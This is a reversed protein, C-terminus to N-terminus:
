KASCGRLLAANIVIQVDVVNVEGDGNLDNTPQASGLAENLIAQTDTVNTVGDQNLDCKTIVTVDDVTFSTGQAAGTIVIKSIGNPSSVHIVEGPHSGSAGSLAENTSYASTASALVNNSADLAQLTVPVSYTFYGGFGQIPSTFTVTIPGGNDSAVNSGSHPPFEFENLTIGAGLIIANTFTAGAYQTTLLTSDVFSDFTFSQALASTAGMAAVLVCLIGCRLRPRM